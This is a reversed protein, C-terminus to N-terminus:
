TLGAIKQIMAVISSRQYSLISLGAVANAALDQFYAVKVSEETDNVLYDRKTTKFFRCQFDGM